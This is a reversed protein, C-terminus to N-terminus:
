KKGSKETIFMKMTYNYNDLCNQADDSLGLYNYIFMQVGTFKTLLEIDSSLYAVMKEFTKKRHTFPHRTFEAM